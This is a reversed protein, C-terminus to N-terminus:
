HQLVNQFLKVENMVENM